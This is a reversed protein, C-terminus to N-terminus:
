PDTQPLKGAATEVLQRVELRGIRPERAPTRYTEINAKPDTYLVKGRKYHGLSIELDSDPVEFLVIRKGEPLDAPDLFVPRPAYAASFRLDGVMLIVTDKSLLENLQLYDKFFAIYREYFARKELGLSVAFFQKAYYIQVGLWPLLLLVSFVVRYGPSAFRDQLHSSAFAAFIILLGLHFGGLFRPDWPLLWYILSCQLVAFLGLAARVDRPLNSLFIAGIAGLWIMPSYSPFVNQIVPLLPGHYAESLIDEAWSNPRLPSGFFGSLVPGFPSGSQVWTWVAIPCFFILWPITVASLINRCMQPNSRWLLPLVGLGLIAMSLPLLSIKSTATALLLMSLMAAYAPQPLSVLLTQRSCFAVLAAAMALDGMAHAGGTVHWIAPYLGVCLAAVWVASWGATKRNASIVRWAFWLLTVSITWSVVNAADPYGIAHAPASSIQFAMQPSIASEFPERYFRLAGDSVIRSPLLMHYSLEDIKTSPAVAILLDAGIAGVVIAFSLVMWRDFASVAIARRMSGRAVLTVAGIVVLIWWITGLVPRSAIEAMGVIQVALSLAQIGLLLATVHDWPSPFRIHICDLIITGIAWLGIFTSVGTVLVLFPNYGEIAFFSSVLWGDHTVLV